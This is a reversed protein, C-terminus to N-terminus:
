ALGPLLGRIGLAMFQVAIAALLLGLVRTAIRIGTEGLKASLPVAVRLTAYVVGAVILINLLLALYGLWGQANQATIIVTSISGPGALLPIALPVVAVDDKAVGEQTEEPTNRARNPSGQLMHIAMLLILLGGGVRFADLDIGFLQLIYQGALAAALLTVGVAIATTRSTRLRDGATQDGTVAVFIPVAGVPNVIALLAVLARLADTLHDPSM